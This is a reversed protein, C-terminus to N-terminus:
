SFYYVLYFDNLYQKLVQNRIFQITLKKNFVVNDWQIQLEPLDSIDVKEGVLEGHTKSWITIQLMVLMLLEMIWNKLEEMVVRVTYVKLIYNSISEVLMLVLLSLMNLQLKLSHQHIKHLLML